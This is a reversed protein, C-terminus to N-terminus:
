EDESRRRSEYMTEAFEDREPMETDLLLDMVEDFHEPDVGSEIKKNIRDLMKVVAADDLPPAQKITTCLLCM